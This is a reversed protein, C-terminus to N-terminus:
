GKGHPLRGRDKRGFRRWVADTGYVPQSVGTRGHPKGAGRQPLGGAGDPRPRGGDKIDAGGDTGHPLHPLVGRRGGCPDKEDVCECEPWMFVLTNTNFPWPGKEKNDLGFEMNNQTIAFEICAEQLTKLESNLLRNIPAGRLIFTKM